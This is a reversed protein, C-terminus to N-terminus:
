APWELVQLRLAELNPQTSPRCYATGTGGGRAQLVLTHAGASLGTIFVPGGLLNVDSGGGGLYYATAGDLLWRSLIEGSGTWFVHGSVAIEITSTGAAVTFGASTYLTTWSGTVTGVGNIIDTAASFNLLLTPGSGGGGGSPTAWVLHHTSPDVTLVQGDTGKALRTEAGSSGGIIIDDQTTMPNAARGAASTAWLPLHTTPDVTLVQSDTGKALRTEAGASGGLILDGATTMPNAARATPEVVDWTSGNDRELRSLTTDYYLRGATGAAPKSGTAGRGIVASLLVEASLGSEAQTTVYHASSPAGGSGGATPTVDDWSSGNDRYIKGEDTAFYLHGEAGAAPRSGVVGSDIINAVLSM